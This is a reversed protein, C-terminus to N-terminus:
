IVVPKGEYIDSITKYFNVGQKKCTGIVSKIDLYNQLGEMSTWFGSIKQKNKVHRLDRESLNNDFPISFDYLFM